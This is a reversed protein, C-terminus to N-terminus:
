SKIESQFHQRRHSLYVRNKIAYFMPMPYKRSKFKDPNGGFRKEYIDAARLRRVRWLYFRDGKLTAETERRALRHILLKLQSKPLNELGSASILLRRDEKLKHDKRRM